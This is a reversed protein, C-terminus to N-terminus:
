AGATPESPRPPGCFRVMGRQTRQRLVAAARQAQQEAEQEAKGRRRSYAIGDMDAAPCSRLQCVHTASNLPAASTQPLLPCRPARV